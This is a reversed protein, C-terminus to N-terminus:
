GPQLLNANAARRRIRVVVPGFDFSHSIIAGDLAAIQDEDLLVWHPIDLHAGSKVARPVGKGAPGVSFGHRALFTVAQLMAEWPETGEFRRVVDDWRPRFGAKEARTALLGSM